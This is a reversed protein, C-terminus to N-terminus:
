QLAVLVPILDVDGKLPRLAKGLVAGFAKVRDGAKMACGPTTSTTLLDGVEVASLRADVKCYVKGTLAVPSRNAKSEQKDLIIGPKYTGAGCIVGAVRNDYPRQSRKLTGEEDIVMVTGPEAGEDESVDFDEACDAGLMRIDGAVDVNGDGRISFITKGEPPAAGIDRVRFYYSQAANQMTGFTAVDISLAGIPTSSGPVRLALTRADISLRGDADNIIRANNDQVKGQYHFDIYPTGTGPIQHDGGLEISGGQDTSLVSGNGWRIGGGELHLKAVPNMTGIGVRDGVVFLTDLTGSGLMLRNTGGHARIRADGAGGGGTAVGIKLRYTADGIKLDGETDTPNLMGVALELKARPATTGIGVNGDPPILMREANTTRIALPRDDKTGLFNTAPKIGSNGNLDWPM